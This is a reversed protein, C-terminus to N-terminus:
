ALVQVNHHLVQISPVEVRQQAVQSRHILLYGPTFLCLLLMASHHSMSLKLPYSCALFLRCTCCALHGPQDRHPFSPMCCCWCTLNAYTQLLSCFTVWCVHNPKRAGCCRCALGKLSNHQQQTATHLCYTASVTSASSYQWVCPMMWRSRFGSLRSMEELPCTLSVSKPPHSGLTPITM